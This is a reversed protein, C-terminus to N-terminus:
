KLSGLRSPWSHLEHASIHPLCFVTTDLSCLSARSLFTHRGLPSMRLTHKNLIIYSINLLFVLLEPFFWYGSKEQYWLFRMSFSVYLLEEIPYIGAIAVSLKKNVNNDRQIVVHKPGYPGDEPSYLVDNQMRFITTAVAKEVINLIFVSTNYEGSSPGYPSFCTTICLSLLM